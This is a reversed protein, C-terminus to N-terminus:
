RPRGPDQAHAGAIRTETAGIPYREAIALFSEAEDFRQQAVLVEAIRCSVFSELSRDDIATAIALAERLAVEAAAPNGALRHVWAVYTWANSLAGFQALDRLISSARRSTSM